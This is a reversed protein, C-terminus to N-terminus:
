GTRHRQLRRYLHTVIRILAVVLMLSIVLYVALVPGATYREPCASLGGECLGYGTGGGLLDLLVLIPLAALGIALLVLLLLLARVWVMVPVVSGAAAADSPVSSQGTPYKSSGNVAASIVTRFRNKVLTSWGTKARM